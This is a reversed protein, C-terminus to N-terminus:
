NYPLVLQILFIGGYSNHTVTVSTVTLLLRYLMEEALNSSLEIESFRLATVAASSIDQAYLVCM